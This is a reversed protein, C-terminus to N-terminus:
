KTNYLLTTMFDLTIKFTDFLIIINAKIGEEM